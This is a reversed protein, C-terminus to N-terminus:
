NNYNFQVKIHYLSCKEVNNHWSSSQINYEKKKYYTFYSYAAYGAQGWYCPLNIM